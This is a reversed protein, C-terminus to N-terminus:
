FARRSGSVMECAAGALTFRRGEWWGSARGLITPGSYGVLEIKNRQRSVAAAIAVQPLMFTEKPPPLNSAPPGNGVMAPTHSNKCCDTTSNPCRWETLPTGSDTQTRFRYYTM